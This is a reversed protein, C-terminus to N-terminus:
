KTLIMSRTLTSEETELRYIYVGSALQDGSFAYAHEGVGLLGDALVAVQRGLLDCVTLRVPGTQALSLRITTAPNFPNPHNQELVHREPQEEGGVIDPDGPLCHIILPISYGMVHKGTSSTNGNVNLHAEFNVYVAEDLQACAEYGIVPSLPDGPTARVWQFSRPTTGGAGNGDILKNAPLGVGYIRIWADDPDPNPLGNGPEDLVLAYLIASQCDYRLYLRSLVAYGPWAPTPRGANYMDAFFDSGLNWEAADGDVVIGGGYAPQPGIAFASSTIFLSLLLAAQLLYAKLKM